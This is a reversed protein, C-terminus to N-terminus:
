DIKTNSVKDQHWENEELTEDLELYHNSVLGLFHSLYRLRQCMVPQFISSDRGQLFQPLSHLTRNGDIGM